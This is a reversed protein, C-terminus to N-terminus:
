KAKNEGTKQVLEDWECFDTNFCSSHITLVVGAVTEGRTDRQRRTPAQAPKNNSEPNQLGGEELDTWLCLTFHLPQM